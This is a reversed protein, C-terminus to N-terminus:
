PNKVGEGLSCNWARKKQTPLIDKILTITLGGDEMAFHRAMFCGWLVHKAKFQGFNAHHLSLHFTYVIYATCSM